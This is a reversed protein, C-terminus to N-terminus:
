HRDTEPEAGTLSAVAEVAAKRAGTYGHTAIFELVERTEDSGFARLGEVVGDLLAWDREEVARHAAAELADLAKPEHTKGLLVAVLKRTPALPHHLAAALRDARDGPETEQLDAGCNECRRAEYPNEHWCKACWRVM